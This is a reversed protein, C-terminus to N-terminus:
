KVALDSIMQKLKNEILPEGIMDVQKLLEDRKKKTISKVKTSEIIKQVAKIGNSEEKKSLMFNENEFISYRIDHINAMFTKIPCPVIEGRQTLVRVCDDAMDLLINQNATIIRFEDRLPSAVIMSVIKSLKDLPAEREPFLYTTKTFPVIKELEAYTHFPAALCKIIKGDYLMKSTEIQEKSLDFLNSPIKPTM